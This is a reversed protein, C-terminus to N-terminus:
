RLVASCQGQETTNPAAPFFVPPRASQGFQPLAPTSDRAIKSRDHIVILCIFEDCLRRHYVRRALVLCFAKLKCGKRGEFM